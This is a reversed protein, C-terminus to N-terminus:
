LTLNYLPMLKTGPKREFFDPFGLKRLFAQEVVHYRTANVPDKLTRGVKQYSAKMSEPSARADRGTLTMAACEYARLWNTGFWNHMKERQVLMSKPVYSAARCAEAESKSKAQNRRAELVADWREFDIMDQRYRAIAAGARGRKRTKERKLLDVLVEAAAKVLWEPPCIGHEDCFNLAAAVAIELHNIMMERMFGLERENIAGVADQDAVECANRCNYCTTMAHQEASSIRVFM